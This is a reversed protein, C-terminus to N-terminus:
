KRLVIALLGLFGVVGGVIWPVMSPKAAAQAAAVAAASQAQAIQVDRDAKLKSEALKNQEIGQWVGLGTDLLGGIAGMGGGSVFSDFGFQGLGNLREGKKRRRRIRRATVANYSM